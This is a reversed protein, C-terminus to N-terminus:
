SGSPVGGRGMRGLHWLGIGIADIMNHAKSVPLKRYRTQEEHSILGVIRNCMIDGDVQAKWSHPFVYLTGPYLACLRGASLAVSILDNPNGKGKGTPYIRPLECVVEAAGHDLPEIQGTVYADTLIGDDFIAVGACKGPDIAILRGM